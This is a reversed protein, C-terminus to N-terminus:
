QGLDQYDDSRGADPLRLEGEVERELKVALDHDGIRALDVLAEVDRGVLGTLLLPTAHAIVHDIEDVRGGVEVGGM